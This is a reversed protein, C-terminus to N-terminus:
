WSLGEPKATQGGAIGGARRHPSHVQSDIGAPGAERSMQVM